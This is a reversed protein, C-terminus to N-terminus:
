SVLIPYTYSIGSGTKSDYGGKKSTVTVAYTTEVDTSFPTDEGAKFWGVFINPATPTATITYTHTASSTTIGSTTTITGNDSVAVTGGDGDVAVALTTVWTTTAAAWTTSPAVTLGVLALLAFLKRIM